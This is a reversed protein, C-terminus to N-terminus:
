ALSAEDSESNACFRTTPFWEARRFTKAPAPSPRRTDRPSQNMTRRRPFPLGSPPMGLLVNSRESGAIVESEPIRNVLEHLAERTM